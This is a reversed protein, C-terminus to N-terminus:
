EEPALLKDLVLEGKAFWIQMFDFKNLKSFEVENIYYNFWRISRGYEIM